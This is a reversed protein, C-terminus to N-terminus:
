SDKNAFYQSPGTVFSKQGFGSVSAVFVVKWASARTSYLALLVPGRVREEPGPTTNRGSFVVCEDGAEKRALNEACAGSAYRLGLRGAETM